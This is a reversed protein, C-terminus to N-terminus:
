LEIQRLLLSESGNILDSAMFEVQYNGEEFVPLDLEVTLDDASMTGGSGDPGPRRPTLVEVQEFVLRRELFVRKGLALQGRQGQEASEFSLSSWPMTFRLRAIPQLDLRAGLANGVKMLSPYYRGVHIASRGFGKVGVNVRKYRDGDGDSEVQYALRYFHGAQDLFAELNTVVASRLSPYLFGGCLSVLEDELSGEALELRSFRIRERICLTLLQNLDFGSENEASLRGTANSLAYAAPQSPNDTASRSDIPVADTRSELSRDWLAPGLVLVEKIGYYCRLLRVFRSIARPDLRLTPTVPQAFIESDQGLPNAQMGDGEASRLSQSGQQFGYGSSMRHTVDSSEAGPASVFLSAKDFTAHATRLEWLAEIWRDQDASFGGVMFIGEPVAYALALQWAGLDKHLLFAECQELMTKVQRVDDLFNFLLLLRPTDFSEGPVLDLFNVEEVSRITQRVGAESLSFDAHSLGLVPRQALDLVRVDLEVRRVTLMEQLEQCLLFLFLASAM